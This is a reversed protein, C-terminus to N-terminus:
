CFSPSHRTLKSHVDTVDNSKPYHKAIILIAEKQERSFYKSLSTKVIHFGKLIVIVLIFILFLPLLYLMWVLSNLLYGKAAIRMCGDFIKQVESLKHKSFFEIEKEIEKILNADKHIKSKTILINLINLQPYNSYVGWIFDKLMEFTEDALEKKHDIKLSILQDKLAILKYQYKIRLIPLLIAEIFFHYGALIFGIFLIWSLM